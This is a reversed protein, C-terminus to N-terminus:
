ARRTSATSCCLLLDTMNKFTRVLMAFSEVYSRGYVSGPVPILPSAVIWDRQHWFPNPEPGRIIRQEGAMVVLQKDGLWEGDSNVITGYFEHMKIPQRRKEAIQKGHGAQRETDGEVEEDTRGSTVSKIAEADWLEPNEEAMQLLEWRDMEYERIRYMGRGTPDYLLERANVPAMRLQGDEWTVSLAPMSMAGSKMAEAFVPPFGTPQGTINRGCNSMGYDVTKQVIGELTGDKDLPDEFRYWEQGASTLASRLAAVWREVFTAVDPIKEDAQWEAKESSTGFRAWYAEWNLRWVDERVEPGSERAERAESLYDSMLVRLETESIDSGEGDGMTIEDGDENPAPPIPPGVAEAEEQEFPMEAAPLEGEGTLGGPPPQSPERQFPNGGLDIPGAM